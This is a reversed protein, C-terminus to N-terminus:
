PGHAATIGVLGVDGVAGVVLEAEVVQPVVHHQVEGPLHLPAKIVGDYVLHVVDQYVLSTSREDDGARGILRVGVVAADGAEDGAKLAFGVVDYLLLGSYYGEGFLSDLLHLPPQPHIVEVGRFVEGQGGVHVIGQSGLGDEMAVAVVDDFVPLHDDNVLEGAAQHM